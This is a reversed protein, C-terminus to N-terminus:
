LQWLHFAAFSWHSLVCLLYYTALYEKYSAKSVRLQIWNLALYLGLTPPLDLIFPGLILHYNIHNISICPVYQLVKFPQIYGRYKELSRLGNAEECGEHSLNEHKWYILGNTQSSILQVASLIDRLLISFDGNGCNLFLLISSFQYVSSCVFGFCSFMLKFAWQHSLLFDTM